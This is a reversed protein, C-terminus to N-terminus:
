KVCDINGQFSETHVSDCNEDGRKRQNAARDYKYFYDRGGHLKNELQKEVGQGAKQNKQQHINDAAKEIKGKRERQRVHQNRAAEADGARKQQNEDMQKSAAM